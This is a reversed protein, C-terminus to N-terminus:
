AERRRKTFIAWIGALSAMLLAIWFAPNSTDGTSPSNAANSSDTITGTDGTATSTDDTTSGTDNKKSDDKRSDDSTNKVITFSTSASGDTWAIEFNHSGVSLTQLYDATLTIITSGETVTYNESDIVVGDVKVEKFKSIEGNGRISITGDTNQTWTSDAGDIIKYAIAPIEITYTFTQVKSDQMGEKVAVAKITTVVRKGEAGTVSIPTTYKTGNSTSPTTGDTTYYITAEETSSTLTVSQNHTYTGVAPNCTPAGAIGAASVKITITTTLPVSNADIADPCTVVGKLTVSQETLISPNYSGSEPTTTDWAVDAKLTNGGETTIDVQSPLYMVIDSYATGNAVTVAQPATIDTLKEKATKAFTYTVTLTGDANKTTDAAAADNVAVTIADAFCYGSKATLVTEMIYATNYDANGTVVNGDKMWTVVSDATGSTVIASTDLPSGAAPADVKLAISNIKESITTIELPTGAYDTVNTAATHEALIYLHYDKGLTKGNLSGPMAFTGTGSTTSFETGQLAGYYLIAADSDSYAKDTIMVSIQNVQEADSHATDTYTYPVTIIGNEGKTVVDGDTLEITKRIDKLTLKWETAKTTGIQSTDATLASAKDTGSASTLLVSSLSLNLAPSVGVYDVNVQQVNLSGVSTIIDVHDDRYPYMSRLWWYNYDSGNKKRNAVYGTANSYGYSTNAAEKTDLFFIKDNNLETYTTYSYGDGDNSDAASKTSLAIANQETESFNKTLFTGNLYARISSTAWVNSSLDFASSQGDSNKGAWLISDCDLLMTTGGYVSTNSDLVRYKIPEAIGDGDTDYTGFYVYSGKWENADSEPVTPDAIASTGLSVSTKTVSEDSDDSESEYEGSKFGAANDPITGNITCDIDSSYIRHSTDGQNKDRPGLYLSSGEEETINVTVKANGSIQNQFSAGGWARVESTGKNTINVTIDSISGDKFTIASCWKKGLIHANDFTVDYEVAEDTENSFSLPTDCELQGTIIYEGTFAIESGGNQSYGTPTIRIYGDALNLTVPKFTMRITSDKQISYDQLTNGDELEKGAFSLSIRDAEIGEKDYIKAKVDEIRDTPEVELTIHKGSPTKVFIQMSIGQTTSEKSANVAYTLGDDGTTELWIRCNELNIDSAVSVASMIEDITISAGSGSIQKSYYWDTGNNSGQVVIAASTVVGRIGKITGESANYTVTGVNKSSGDLRLTMATDAEITGSAQTDSSPAQASSAFLVSSLNLNSAPRVSDTNRVMDYIIRNYNAMAFLVYQMDYQEIPTRLWFHSGDAAWYTQALAKSDSGIKVNAAQYEGAALYLVDATTYDTDNKIDHTTVPTAQMLSQEAASFYNTDKALNEILYKRLKSAGYHNGYVESPNSDTYTGYDYGDGLDALTISADSEQFMQNTGISSTAFIATNDGAVGSDSGLIYWEQAGGDSNKGFKIKGVNTIHGDNDPAFTSDMLQTKAAYATANPESSEDAAKVKTVNGPMVPLLGLVMAASLAAAMGKKFNNRVNM